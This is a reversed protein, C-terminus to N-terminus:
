EEIRILNNAILDFEEKSFAGQRYLSELYKIMIQKQTNFNEIDYEETGYYFLKNLFEKNVDARKYVKEIINKFFDDFIEKMSHFQAKKSMLRHENTMDSVVPEILSIRDMISIRDALEFLVHSEISIEPIIEAEKLISDKFTELDKEFTDLHKTLLPYVEAPFNFSPKEIYLSRHKQYSYFIKVLAIFTRNYAQQKKKKDNWLNYFKDLGYAVVTGSAVVYTWNKSIFELM